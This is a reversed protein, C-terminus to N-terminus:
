NKSSNTYPKIMADWTTESIPFHRFCGLELVQLPKNDEAHGLLTLRIPRGTNFRDVPLAIMDFPDHPAAKLRIPAETLPSHFSAVAFAEGDEMKHYSIIRHEFYKMEHILERELNIRDENTFMIDVVTSGSNPASDLWLCKNSVKGQLSSSLYDTPFGIRLVRVVQKKGRVPSQGRRWEIAKRDIKEARKVHEKTLAHRCLNPPHFSFKQIGGLTRSAVYVDSKRSWVAWESSRPGNPSGVVFRLDFRNKSM